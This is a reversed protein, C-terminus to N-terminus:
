KEIDCGNQTFVKPINYGRFTTDATATHPLGSPILTDHRLTERICAEVYPLSVCFWFLIQEFKTAFHM